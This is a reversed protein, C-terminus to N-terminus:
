EKVESEAKAECERCFFLGENLEKGCMMCNGRTIAKAEYEKDAEIITPSKSAVESAWTLGDDFAESLEDELNVQENELCKDLLDADILRGHGKPLPTASRFVEKIHSSVYRSDYLDQLTEQDLRIVLEIDAM